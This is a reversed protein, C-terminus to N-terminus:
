RRLGVSKMISQFRPDSAITQFPPYQNMLALEVAHEEYARQLAALAPEREQLADHILATGFSSVYGERRHTELEALIARAEQTRGAAAYAYGLYAEFRTNHVPSLQKATEFARTADALKSMAIFTIGLNFHLRPQNPSMAVARRYEEIAREYHGARRYVSGVAVQANVSQPDMERRRKATALAEEFSERADLGADAPLTRGGSLTAARRLSRGGEEWKWYYLNLILGL